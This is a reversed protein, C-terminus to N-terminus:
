KSRTNVVKRVSVKADPKLGLIGTIAVTDGEKLGSVIQVMSSDRMGTTVDTAIAKGGDIVYVRKGRAQPIIAQTPIMLANPDPKFQIRVRAFAGPVLGAADGKVLARMTLSRTAESIGSETAAVVATYNRNSNDTTFQVFSGPKVKSVYREPLNFDIRLGETKQITTLVSQQTVFAGPSTMKLGLKGTFPARVETKRINTNIIELDARTNSIQLQAIDLDQRSIGGIKQLAAYRDVTTQAQQLQVQLKRRQAQLDGDYLKALLTGQRVISGERINLQVIRGAVEPHIETSESAVLTGPVEVNESIMRTDVVFADVKSPPRPGGKQQASADPKPESHCAALLSLGSLLLISQKL